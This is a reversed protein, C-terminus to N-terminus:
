CTPHGIPLFDDESRVKALAHLEDQIAAARYEGEYHGQGDDGGHDRWADVPIMQFLGLAIDAARAQGREAANAREALETLAADAGDSLARDDVALGGRVREVLEEIPEPTVLVVM